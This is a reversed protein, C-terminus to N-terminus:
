QDNDLQGKLHTCSFILTRQMYIYLRLMPVVLVGGGAGREGSGRARGDCAPGEGSTANNKLPPVFKEGSSSTNWPIASYNVGLADKMVGDVYRASTKSDVNVLFRSTCYFFVRLRLSCTYKHGHAHTRTNTRRPELLLPQTVITSKLWYKSWQPYLISQTLGPDPTCFITLLRKNNYLDLTM